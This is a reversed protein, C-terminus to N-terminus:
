IFLVMLTFTGQFLRAIDNILLDNMEGFGQVGLENEQTAFRELPMPKMCILYKMSIKFFITGIQTKGRNFEEALKRISPKSVKESAKIM